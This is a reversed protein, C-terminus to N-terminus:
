CTKVIHDRVLLHPRSRRVRLARLGGLVCRRAPLAVHALRRPHSHVPHKQKFPWPLDLHDLFAMTFCSDGLTEPGRCQPGIEKLRRVLINDVDSSASLGLAGWTHIAKLTMALGVQMIWCAEIYKCNNGYTVVSAHTVSFITYAM